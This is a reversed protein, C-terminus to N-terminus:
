PRCRMCGWWYRSHDDLMTLPHCEREPAPYKGKSDMQWLENPAGLASVSRRRGM